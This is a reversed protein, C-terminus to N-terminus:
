HTGGTAVQVWVHTGDPTFGLNTVNDNFVEPLKGKTLNLSGGGGLQTVWVDFSGDRDSLFAVFKGDRSIAANVESGEYDTLRTFRAGSLPNTWVAAARRHSWVAGAAVLLVALGTLAFVGR